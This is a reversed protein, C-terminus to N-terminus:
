GVRPVATCFKTFNVQAANAVWVRGWSVRRSPQRTSEYSPYALAGGTSEEEYGPRMSRAGAVYPTASIHDVAPNSLPTDVGWLRSSTAQAAQETADKRTAGKDFNAECDVVQIANNIQKSRVRAKAGRGGKINDSIVYQRARRRRTEIGPVPDALEDGPRQDDEGRRAPEPEAAPFYRAIDEPLHLHPLCSPDHSLVQDVHHASNDQPINRRLAPAGDPRGSVFRCSFLAVLQDLKARSELHKTFLDAPNSEGAVKHLTFEKRRLRQQVWLSHCELHRLKGLGQRGAIGM